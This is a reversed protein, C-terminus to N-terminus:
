PLLPAKLFVVCHVLDDYLDGDYTPTLKNIAELHLSAENTLKKRSLYMQSANGSNIRDITHALFYHAETNNPQKKVAQSLLAYAHSFDPTDAVAQRKFEAKGSDLLAPFDLAQSYGYQMAFLCCLLSFTKSM